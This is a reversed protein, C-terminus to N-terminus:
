FWGKDGLLAKNFLNKEREERKQAMNKDGFNGTVEGQDVVVSVHFYDFVKCSVLLVKVSGESMGPLTTSPSPSPSSPPPSQITTMIISIM